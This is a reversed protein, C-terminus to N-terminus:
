KLISSNMYQLDIKKYFFSNYFINFFKYYLYLVFLLYRIFNILHKYSVNVNSFQILRKGFLTVILAYIYM